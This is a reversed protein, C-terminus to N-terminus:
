MQHRCQGDQGRIADVFGLGMARLKAVRESEFLVIKASEAFMAYTDRLCFMPDFLFYRFYLKLRNRTAYYKRLASHNSCCLNMGVLPVSVKRPDGITHLFRVDRFCWLQWGRHRMKLALEHDVCDIFFGVDCGGIEDYAPLYVLSGSTILTKVQSSQNEQLASNLVEHIGAAIGIKGQYKLREARSLVASVYDIPLTSDQDLTLMWEAGSASALEGVINLPEAIGLNEHSPIYEVNGPLDSHAMESGLGTNDWLYVKSVQPSVAEINKQLRKLDPHYAVIVAVVHADTSARKIQPAAM